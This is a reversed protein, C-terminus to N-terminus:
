AFQFSNADIVPRQLADISTDEVSLRIGWDEYCEESRTTALTKKTEWFKMMWVEM